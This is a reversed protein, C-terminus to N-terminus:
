AGSEGHEFRASRAADYARAVPIGTDRYDIGPGPRTTAELLNPVNEWEGPWAGSIWATGANRYEGSDGFGFPREVVRRVYRECEECEEGEEHGCFVRYPDCLMWHATLHGDPVDPVPGLLLLGLAPPLGGPLVAAHLLQLDLDEPRGKVEVWTRLDPLWFDPLYPRREEGILYGQPEYEWTVGLADFFVAWRAELRSRFRHGAYRTEIPIIDVISRLRLETGTVAV